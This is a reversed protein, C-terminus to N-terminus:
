FLQSNNYLNRSSSIWFVCQFWYEGNDMVTLDANIRDVFDSFFVAQFIGNLLITGLM